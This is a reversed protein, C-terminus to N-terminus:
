GRRIRNETGEILRRINSRHRVIILAGMLMAFAILPWLGRLDYGLLLAGVVVLPVFTAAAVISGVSVYGSLCTVVVWIALAAM